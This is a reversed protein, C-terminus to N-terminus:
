SGRASGQVVAKKSAMDNQIRGLSRHTVNSLVCTQLQDFKPPIMTSFGLRGSLGSLTQMVSTTKM